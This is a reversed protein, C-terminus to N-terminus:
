EMIAEQPPQDGIANYAATIWDNWTVEDEPKDLNDLQEGIKKAHPEHMVVIHFELGMRTNKETGCSPNPCAYSAMTM